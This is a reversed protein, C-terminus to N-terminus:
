KLSAAVLKQSRGYDGYRGVIANCSAAQGALMLATSQRSGTHEEVATARRVSTIATTASAPPYRSTVDDRSVDLNARFVDGAQDVLSSRCCSKRNDNARKRTIIRNALASNQYIRYLFPSYRRKGELEEVFVPRRCNM